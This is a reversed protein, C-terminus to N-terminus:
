STSQAFTITLSQISDASYSFSFTASATGALASAQAGDAFTITIGANSISDVLNYSHGSTWGSYLGQLGASTVTSSSILLPTGSVLSPTQTPTLAMTTSYVNSGTSTDKIVVGFTGTLVYTSATGTYVCDIYANTNISSVAGGNPGIFTLGQQPSNRSDFTTTSGDTYTVTGIFYLTNLANKQGGSPNASGFYWFAGILLCIAIIAALLKKHGNGNSKKNSM